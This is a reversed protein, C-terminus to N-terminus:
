SPLAAIPMSLAHVEALLEVDRSVRELEDELTQVDHDPSLGDRHSAISAPPRTLFWEVSRGLTEALRALELADLERQGAEIRGIASRHLGLRHGLQQQTFGARERADAVRAGVETWSRLRAPEM